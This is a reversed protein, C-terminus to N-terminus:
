RLPAGENTTHPAAHPLFVIDNGNAYREEEVQSPSVSRSLSLYLSLSLSLSLLGTQRISPGQIRQMIVVKDAVDYYHSIRGKSDPIARM